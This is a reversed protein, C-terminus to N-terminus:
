FAASGPASLAALANQWGGGSQRQRVLLDGHAFTGAEGV